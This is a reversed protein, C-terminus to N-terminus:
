GGLVGGPGWLVGVGGGEGAGAGGGHSGMAPVIFPEAGKEKLVRVLSRLVVDIEAVGRSGATLAVRMGPEVRSSIEKKEVEERVKAEVDEVRPRPFEQRVKVLKPLTM